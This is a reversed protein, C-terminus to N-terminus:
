EHSGVPVCVPYVCRPRKLVLIFNLNPSRYGVCGASAYCPGQCKRVQESPTVESSTKFIFREVESLLLGQLKINGFGSLRGVEM